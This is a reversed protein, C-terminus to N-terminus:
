AALPAFMREKFLPELAKAGALFSVGNVYVTDAGEAIKQAIVFQQDRRYDSPEWGATERWIVVIEQADVAGRYVLYKRNDDYYVKRTRVRLGLLYNFTEAVDARASGGNGNAHTALQYDFPRSLQEINLLTASDRTEWQLMYKIVYDELEMARQVGANAFEVNNLADEYSELYMYKVIRPSRQVAQAAPAKPKGANWNPSFMVKKVRPLVVDDFHEGMEVLTFRRDGGDKRNLNVVAHATTGSGAFFDLVTTNAACGSAQLCDEVLAVAKAFDFNKEGFLDKLVSPGRNASAYKSEGWWTTPNAGLDMRVKFDIEIGTAIRRVRYDALTEALTEPGRHWNKEVRRGDEMRVPWVMVEADNPKELIRYEQLHNQWEMPPVRLSNDGAVYIPYFLKPRDERRDNSGHRILNNWAYRGEDDTLRYREKQRETKDLPAPVSQADGFFLAYEHSPSLRGKSKRGAPNSRVAVVGLEVEFLQQMLLRLRAAEEDDIAVCVVGGQRLLPKAVQLRDAMLSLWASDKYDNKYLIASADTNYPPDLYLCQTTARCQMALLGLAQFNESRVLLGDLQDDLGGDDSLSVLLEDTFEQDFHATDLVLSPHDVLFGERKAHPNKASSAHNFLNTEAEDIAYLRKWETWQAECAAIEPHFSPDIIRVSVCYQVNTVFKRKEWIMKQFSEVQDLFDIVQGGATKMLRLMQFWGRAWGEATIQDTTEVGDINLIENKLYFDLERTLFGKLDKHIFFDTTNRRTYRRLHYEFLTVAEDGNRHREATVAALPVSDLHKPLDAVAQAIIAEQLHNNGNGAQDAASMPRFEFPIHLVREGQQWALEQLRPIFYRKEGKVNNQEVNADVVVFRVSIDRAKFAYDRFHEGTKVYYQDKNAWHLHVEEGNYPIAYRERRSYRRKSIFDGDDYYRSFFSYLHNFVTAQVANIDASRAVHWAQKAQLSLYRAGIPTEHFVAQLNGDSDLAKTGLAKRIEEQTKGLQEALLAQEALIGQSLDDAILKPLDQTIYRDIVERKHNMIRYIGFDLDASDFQFLERLLAQFREQHQSM